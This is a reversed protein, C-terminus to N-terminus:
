GLSKDAETRRTDSRKIRIAEGIRGFQKCTMNGHRTAATLMQFLPMTGRARDSAKARSSQLQPVPTPSEEEKEGGKKGSHQSDHQDSQDQVVSLGMCRSGCRFSKTKTTTRSNRHPIRRRFLAKWQCPLM